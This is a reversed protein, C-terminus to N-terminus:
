SKDELRRIREDHNGVKEIVVAIKVNLEQVSAGMEHLTKAVYIGICSWGFYFLAGVVQSWEMQEPM